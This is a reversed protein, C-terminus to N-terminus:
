PAFRLRERYATHDSAATHPLLRARGRATTLTADILRGGRHTGSTPLPRKWTLRQGPFAATLYRRWPPRRLDVNWDAVTLTAAPHWRDRLRDVLSAWGAVADRWVAVRDARDATRFRDASQVSAPLHALTVLIRGVHPPTPDLVVFMARAPRPQGTATFYTTPTLLRVGHTRYTWRARRWMVGLDTPRPARAGWGDGRRHLTRARAREEIETVTFLDVPPRTHRRVEARLRDLPRDFRQSAHDHRVTEAAAPPAALLIVLLGGIAARIM